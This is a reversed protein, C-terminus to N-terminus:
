FHCKTVFLNGVGTSYWCVMRKKGEPGELKLIFAQLEQVTKCPREITEQPPTTVTAPGPHNQQITQVLREISNSIDTSMREIALLMRQESQEILHQFDSFHQHPPPHDDQCKIIQKTNLCIHPVELFLIYVNAHSYQWICYSHDLKSLLDLWTMKM